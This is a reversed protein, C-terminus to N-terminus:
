GGIQVFEDVQDRRLLPDGLIPILAGGVGHVLIQVDQAGIMGFVDQNKAAVV